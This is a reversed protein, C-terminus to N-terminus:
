SNAWAGRVDRRRRPTCAGAADRATRLGIRVARAASSNRRSAHRRYPPSLESSRSRARSISAACGSNAVALMWVIAATPSTPRRARVAPVRRERRTAVLAAGVAPLRQEVRAVRAEVAVLRAVRREVNGSEQQLVAGIGVGAVEPVAHVVRREGREGARESAALVRDILRGVLLARLQCPQQEVGAGIRVVRLRQVVPLELRVVVVQPEQELVAQALRVPAGPRLPEPRRKGFRRLHEVVLQEEGGRVAEHFADLEEDCVADVHAPAAASMRSMLAPAGVLDRHEVAVGLDGLVERRTARVARVDTDDVLEDSREEAGVSGRHVIEQRGIRREEVPREGFVGVDHGAGGLRAPQFRHLQEDIEADVHVIGVRVWRM